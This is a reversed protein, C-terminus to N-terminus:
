EPMRLASETLELKHFPQGDQGVFEIQLARYAVGASARILLFTHPKGFDAVLGPHPANANGIVGSHVPSTILEIVPYGATDRTDHRVVRSRHVDGGILVVGSIRERGLFRFLADREHPYSGWHDRKGPRVAENWIMGCALIKFRATSDRLGRGLWKWQEAGLLSRKEPDFPSPETGAFYRTDLLFVEVGGFRFRSYIGHKGNGYSANARYEGFARRANSKGPLNGDTDNRGFDHDDWTAYFRRGAVLQRFSPVAAFERYRSRQEALQTSDIYPTDGLLVIAQPDAHLMRRWVRASGEDERACSAFALRTEHRQVRPETRFSFGRGALCKKGAVTFQYSYRTGPQLGQLVWHGCRDTEATVEHESSVARGGGVPTAVLSGRGAAALRAWLTATSDTVHGVFPGHTIEAAVRTQQDRIFSVIRTPDRLSHPHHKGGKKVIVQMSGGLDRYRRAFEATHTAFPVSEDADGCVHLIPIRHAALTAVRFLADHGSRKALRLTLGHATMWDSVKELEPDGEDRGAVYPRLGMVPADGYICSLRAPYKLAWAYIILGGRSMGLLAPRPSFAHEATLYEYLQSWRWVAEGNGWLGAVDCYAVHFGEALLALETQPEHGWFRARWIWPRGEAVHRPTVVRCAVGGVVEFDYQQYGHWESRTGPFGAGWSTSTATCAMALVLCVAAHRVTSRM